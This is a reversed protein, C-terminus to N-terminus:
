LIRGRKESLLALRRISFVVAAVSVALSLVLFPANGGFLSVVSEDAKDPFLRTLVFAVSNNAWHIVISPLVSRTRVYLWGLLLGVLFAHVGQAANGHVAGFVIASLMIAPWAGWKLSLLKRLVAGRFVIEEAVPAAVGLVLYGYGHNILRRFMDEMDGPLSFPLFDEIYQLPLILSVGLLCCLSLVSASSRRRVFLLGAESWRLSVFLLAAVVSSVGSGIVVAMAADGCIHLACASCLVQLLLYVVVYGAAEVASVMGYNM